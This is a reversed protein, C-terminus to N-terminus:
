TARRELGYGKLKGSLTRVGIELNRDTGAIRRVDGSMTRRAPAVRDDLWAGTVLAAAMAVTTALWAIRM